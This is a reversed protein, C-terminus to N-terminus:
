EQVDEVTVETVACRFGTANNRADPVAPSRAGSRVRDFTDVWSGGRLVRSEGTEAGPPNATPFRYYGRFDYFDNVWEWVNGSMDLIQHPSAGSPFAGINSTRVAGDDAAPDRWPAGCNKDCFNVRTADFAEGWPYRVGSEGRAAKDWEAETPLRRGAWECYAKADNWSTQVVPRRPLAEPAVPGEPLIWSAGRAWAANPSFVIGGDRAFDGACCGREADTKYETANVFDVFQAVTVETEDIWFGDLYIKQQPKEDEKANPDTDPSGLLFEGPPIFRLVAADKKWNVRTQAPLTPTPLPTNTVTPVPTTPVVTHVKTVMPTTVALGTESTPTPMVMPTRPVNILWILAFVAAMMAGSTLLTERPKERVFKLIIARLLALREPINRWRREFPSPVLTDATSSTEARRATQNTPLPAEIIDAVAESLERATQYRGAPDKALAKTLIADFAPPLKPNLSTPPPPTDSIHRMVIGVASDADFPVQGTLMEFLVVGLSYLDSRGDVPQGRGQEPSMYHPTGIMGLGSSTLQGGGAIKALGFDAISSNAQLDVLVNRPKIDRHVIGLQHAWDLASGIETLYRLALAPTFPGKDRILDHLTGGKLYRMVLFLAGDKEGFDIIPVIHPHELAAVIQAEQRFREVFQQDGSLTGAIIKVAVMRNMSTQLAKYVDSMSGAGIKEILWYGGLTHGIWDNPM